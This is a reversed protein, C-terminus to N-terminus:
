GFHINLLQMSIRRAQDMAQLARYESNDDNGDNGFLIIQLPGARDSSSGDPLDILEVRGEGSNRTQRLWSALAM